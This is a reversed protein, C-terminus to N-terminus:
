HRLAAMDVFVMSAAEERSTSEGRRGHAESGYGAEEESWESSGDQAAPGLGADRGKEQDQKSRLSKQTSQPPTRAQVPTIQNPEIRIGTASSDEPAWITQELTGMNMYCHIERKGM